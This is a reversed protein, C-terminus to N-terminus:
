RVSACITAADSVALLFRGYAAQLGRELGSLLLSLEKHQGLQESVVEQLDADDSSDVGTSQCRLAVAALPRLSHLMKQAREATEQLKLMHQHLQRLRSLALKVSDVSAVLQWGEARGESSNRESCSSSETHVAGLQQLVDLM